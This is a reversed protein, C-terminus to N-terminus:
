SQRRKEDIFQDILKRAISVSNSPGGPLNDYRYWDASELENTDITIEGADYDATFGLMLSDPFPWAQSEVYHLNKITIGVEEKVERHVADEISEGVEVFGAILGYAHPPFHPSRSMLIKDENRILVIICPSIRPYFSLGCHTCIREFAGKKHTTHEGCRGCFQHNKDWTIVSIAKALTVYWDKSLLEFAKRLPISAFEPPLDINANIEACFCETHNILGLSYRRTFHQKLPTLSSTDPLTNNCLLLRDNQFIFGREPLHSSM